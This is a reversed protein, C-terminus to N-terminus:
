QLDNESSIKIPPRDDSKKLYIIGNVCFAAKFHNEKKYDRVKKYLNRKNVPLDENLYIKMNKESPKCRPDYESLKLGKRERIRQLIDKKQQQNNFKALIPGSESKGMRFSEVCQISNTQVNMATLIGQIINNTNEDPRKPIGNIILNNSREKVELEDFKQELIQIRDKLVSNEKRLTKTENLVAEFKRKIEEFSDSMFQVSQELSNFKQDLKAEVPALFQQFSQKIINKLKTEDMEGILIKIKESNKRQKSQRVESKEANHCCFFKGDNNAIKVRESCSSHYNTNCKECQVAEIVKKKCYNCKKELSKKLVDAM